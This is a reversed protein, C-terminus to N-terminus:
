TSDKECRMAVKKGKYHDVTVGNKKKEKVEASLDILSTIEETTFDKLTLFNRGKLDMIRDRVTSNNEVLYHIQLNGCSLINTSYTVTYVSICLFAISKCLKAYIFMLASGAM